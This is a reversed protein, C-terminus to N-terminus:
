SVPVSDLIPVQAQDLHSALATKLATLEDNLENLHRRGLDYWRVGHTAYERLIREYNTVEAQKATVKASLEDINM